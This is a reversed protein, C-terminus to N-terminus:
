ALMNIFDLILVEGCGYGAVLYRGDWQVATPKAYRGSLQFVEKGTVTDEIRANPQEIFDLHPRDITSSLTIPSTGPIGFDWGQTSSDEFYVWIRSGDMYLPDMFPDGKNELEVKSVAEGTWMPWAQIFGDALIFIKSGDGSIRFGSIETIGPMELIWFREKKADWIHTGHIGIWAFILRGEIIQADGLLFQVGAPTQLSAKCLGTTIDWTRVVGDSDSSIAIGDRVQLTVSEITNSTLPTSMADTTASDVSSTGIQWFRVSKDASASILSSSFTLSPIQGTHGVFTEILHPDSGTINWLYVTHHAAGAILRGDPSFCCYNVHSKTVHLETVVVGSNSNQVVIAAEKCLAFQTGDLSFAVYSGDFVPGFQHGNIDWQWVKGGSVSTLHQPDTYSFRVCKVFEQQEIICHCEGTWINWLRITKDDSGSAIMTHDPSISVSKVSHTHGNFTKVVGGTQVDWLNVTQDNSGSVLFIGDLSFILSCVSSTHGSLVSTYVGTVADFIVIGGSSLGTAVIDKQYALALPMSDFSVTRSCAGWEAQGKVM